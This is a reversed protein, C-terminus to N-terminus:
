PIEGRQPNKIHHFFIFPTISAILCFILDTNDFTGPVINILQGLEASIGLIPGILLWIYKTKSSDKYWIILMLSTLSYIWIGDPLSYVIWKPLHINTNINERFHYIISEFGLSNYWDFMVISDERFLIYLFGGLIMPMVVHIFLKLVNSMYNIFLEISM